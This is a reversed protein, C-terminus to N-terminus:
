RVCWPLCSAESKGGVLPGGATACNPAVCVKLLEALTNVGFQSTVLSRQALRRAMAMSISNFLTRGLSASYVLFILKSFSISTNVVDKVKTLEGNIWM